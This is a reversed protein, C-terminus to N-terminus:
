KKTPEPRDSKSPPGTQKDPTGAETSDSALNISYAYGQPEVKARIKDGVKPNANMRTREDIQFRVEKGSQDKVVYDKGDIKLLEGTVVSRPVGGEPTANAGEKVEKPDSPKMPKAAEAAGPDSGKVGEQVKKPDSGKMPDTTDAAYSAAAMGVAFLISVVIAGAQKNM